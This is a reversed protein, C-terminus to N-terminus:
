TYYKFTKVDVPRMQPLNMASYRMFSAVSCLLYIRGVLQIGYVHLNCSCFSDVFLGKWVPSAQPRFPKTNAADCVFDCKRITMLKTVDRLEVLQSM